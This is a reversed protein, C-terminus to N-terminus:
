EDILEGKKRKAEWYEEESYIEVYEEEKQTQIKNNKNKIPTNLYNEFKSGFLTQPRLYQEWETGFWKDYQNDIVKKFDDVKFGEKLRANICQATSKTNPKYNSGIKKNLYDIIEKKPNDNEVIYKNKDISVKGISDQASMQSDSSQCTNKQQLTELNWFWDVGSKELSVVKDWTEIVDKNNLEETENDRISTNCSLCIVSINDLEHKGGKSIPLNHQVTPRAQKYASTMKNGCVPCNKGEFARAIKYNFSYPLSSEKYAKKRPDSEDGDEIELPQEKFTYAGNDKLELMCKEEQYKTDVLRDGRIYNHIKWHKIVIVGSEFALVFSKALLLKLDDESAGIMRMIKKPNNIFGEDDGRMSLHFYLAQASLPMDLYADSDIITKAFMRREAM